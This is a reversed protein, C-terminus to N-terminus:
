KSVESCRRVAGVGPHRGKCHGCRIMPYDAPTPRFSDEDDPDIMEYDNVCTLCDGTNYYYTWNRNLRHGNRCSLEFAVPDQHMTNWEADSFRVEETGNEYETVFEDEYTVRTSQTNFM